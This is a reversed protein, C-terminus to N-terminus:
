LKRYYGILSSIHVIAVIALTLEFPMMYIAGLGSEGGNLVWFSMIGAIIVALVIQGVVAFISIWSFRFLALITIIMVLPPLIALTAAVLLANMDYSTGGEFLQRVVYEWSQWSFLICIFILCYLQAKIAGRSPVFRLRSPTNITTM